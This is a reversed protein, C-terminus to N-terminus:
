RHGRNSRGYKEVNDDTAEIQGVMNKVNDDTAEIQGVMNKWMIM